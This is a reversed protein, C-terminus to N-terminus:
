VSLNVTAIVGVVASAGMALMSIFAVAFAWWADQSLAWAFSFTAGVFVAIATLLILGLKTEM